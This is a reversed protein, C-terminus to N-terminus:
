TVEGACRASSGDDHMGRMVKMQTDMRALKPRPKAPTAKSATASTAGAPHHSSHKDDQTAWAPADVATIALALSPVLALALKM